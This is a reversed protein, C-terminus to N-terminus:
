NRGRGAKMMANMKPTTSGPPSVVLPIDLAVKEGVQQGGAALAATAIAKRILLDSSYVGVAAIEGARAMSSGTPGATYGAIVFPRAAELQNAVDYAVNSSLNDITLVIGPNRNKRLRELLIRKGEEAQGAFRIEEMTAVGTERLAARLAQVRDDGLSDSTTNVFLIAGSASDLKANGANKIAAGVLSVASLSFSQPEVQILAAPTISAATKDFSAAATKGRNAPESALAHGALVVIIGRNRAEAITQSLEPDHPGSPEVILVMPKRSIAKRILEAQTAPREGEGEVTTQIRVKSIGAQIRASIKVAEADDPNRRALILEITKAGSRVPDLTAVSTSRSVANLGPGKGGLEAPRPPVFSASDCGCTSAVVMLAMWQRAVCRRGNDQGKASKEGMM